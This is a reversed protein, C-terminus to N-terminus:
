IFHPNYQTQLNFILCCKIPYSFSQAIFNYEAENKDEKANPNEKRIKYEIDTLKDPLYKQNRMKECYCTEIIVNWSLKLM